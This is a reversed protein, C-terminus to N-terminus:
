LITMNYYITPFAKHASFVFIFKNKSFKAKPAMEPVMEPEAGSIQYKSLITTNYITNYIEPKLSVICNKVQYQYYILEKEKHYNDISVLDQLYHTM